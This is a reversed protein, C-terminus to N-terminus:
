EHECCVDDLPMTLQKSGFESKRTHPTNFHPSNNVPFNLPFIKPYSISSFDQSINSKKQLYKKIM